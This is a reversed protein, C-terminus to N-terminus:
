AASVGMVKADSALTIPTGATSSGLFDKRYFPQMALADAKWFLLIVLPQSKM